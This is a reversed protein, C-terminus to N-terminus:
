NSNSCSLYFKLNFYEIGNSESQPRQFLMLHKYLYIGSVLNDVLEDLKQHGVLEKHQSIKDITNQLKDFDHDHLYTQLNKKFEEKETQKQFDVPLANCIDDIYQRLLELVYLNVKGIFLVDGASSAHSSSLFESSMNM